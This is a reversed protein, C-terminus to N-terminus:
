CLDIFAVAIIRATDGMHHTNSQVSQNMDLRWGALFPPHQQRTALQQLSLRAVDLIVQTTRQAVKAELNAYDTCDLELSSNPFENRVM